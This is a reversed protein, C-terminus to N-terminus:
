NQDKKLIPIGNETFVLHNDSREEMRRHSEYGRVSRFGSSRGERQKIDEGINAFIKANGVQHEISRNIEDDERLINVKIPPAIPFEFNETSQGAFLM